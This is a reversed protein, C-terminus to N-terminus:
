KMNNWLNDGTLINLLLNHQKLWKVVVHTNCNQPMMTFNKKDAIMKAHIADIKFNKCYYIYYKTIDNDYIMDFLRLSEKNTTVSHVNRIESRWRNDNYKERFDVDLFTQPSFALVVDAQVMNGILISAFGGSSTDIFIKTTNHPIINILEKAIKEHGIKYYWSQTLDRIFIKNFKYSKLINFFEFVPMMLQNAIGGFAVLTKDAGIIESKLWDM